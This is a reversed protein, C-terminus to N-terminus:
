CPYPGITVWAAWHGPLAIATWPQWPPNAPSPWFSLCARKAECGAWRKSRPKPRSGRWSRGSWALWCSGNPGLATSGSRGRPCLAIRAGSTRRAAAQCASGPGRRGIAPTRNSVTGHGSRGARRLDQRHDIALDVIRAGMRRQGEARASPGPGGARGAARAHHTRGIRAGRPACRGRRRAATSRQAHNPKGTHRPAGGASAGRVATSPDRALRALSPLAREDAAAWDARLRLSSLIPVAALGNVGELRKVLLTARERRSRADAVQILTEVVAVLPDEPGTLLPVREAFTTAGPAASVCGYSFPGQQQALILLRFEGEKLPPAATGDDAPLGLDSATMSLQDRQFIGKLRRIPQFRYERLAVDTKAGEVVTLQSISAVRVVMVLHAQGVGPELHWDEFGEQASASGCALAVVAVAASAFPRSASRLSRSHLLNHM